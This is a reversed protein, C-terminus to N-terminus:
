SSRPRHSGCIIKSTIGKINRSM